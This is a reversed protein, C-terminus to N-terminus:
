PCDEITRTGQALWTGTGMEIHLDDRTEVGDSCPVVPWSSVRYANLTIRSRRVECTHMGNPWGTAQAACTAWQPDAPDISDCCDLGECACSDIPCLVNGPTFSNICEDSPIAPSEVTPPRDTTTCAILIAPVLRAWLWRSVSRNCWAPVGLHVALGVHGGIRAVYGGDRKFVSPQTTSM